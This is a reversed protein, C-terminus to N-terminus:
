SGFFADGALAEHYTIMFGVCFSVIVGYFVLMGLTGAAVKARSPPYATAKEPHRATYYAPVIDGEVVTSPGNPEEFRITRGDRTTFEYVHHMTTTVHTDNGGGRVTTYSRLCRAEATLGSNWASRLELSRRVTRAAVFLVFVIMLSPLAYFFASM